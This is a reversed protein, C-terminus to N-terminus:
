RRLSSSRGCRRHNKTRLMKMLSCPPYLHRNTTSIIFRPGSVSLPSKRLKSWERSPEHPWPAGIAASEADKTGIVDPLICNTGWLLGPPTADGLLVFCCRSLGFHTSALTEIIHEVIHEVIRCRGAWKVGPLRQRRRGAVPARYVLCRYPGSAPLLGVTPSSFSSDHM